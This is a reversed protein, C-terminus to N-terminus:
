FTMKYGIDGILGASNGNIQDGQSTHGLEIWLYRLGMVLQGPKLRLGVEAGGGVAPARANGRVTTTMLGVGSATIMTAAWSFGAEGDVSLDFRPSLPWRARLLALIPMQDTEVHALGSNEVGRVDVDGHLYGAALGAYLRLLRLPLPTVADVFAAPGVARGLNYALGARAAVVVRVAPPTVDLAADARLTSSAMVSVQQREPERTRDPVYDALYEGEHPVRVNRIRGEPTQWSLGPVMTPTGNHDVARVHLETSRHGDAIVQHDRVDLTLRVPAGGTVRIQEAAHLAGLQAEIAIQEHGDFTRPAQLTLTGVAAGPALTVPHAVKDVEARMGSAPTPNGFADYAAVRIEATEDSGVILRHTGPTIVLAAAPAPRLPVAADTRAAPV